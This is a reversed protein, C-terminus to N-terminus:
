EYLFKYDSLLYTTVAMWARITFNPDKTIQVAMPLDKGTAPDWRGQCEYTMDTDGSQNLERWTDLFVQYTRDIEPDNVDLKEDLLLQHLYQINTKINLVAGDVTHGASEPVETPDVMPFLHRSTKANTFDFATLRCAMENAMVAGVSGILSNATTLRTPVDASDIGGYLLNYDERLWDHPKDWEYTKRWRYGTVAAIKRNLMEPTLLRGTGMDLQMYPTTPNGEIARYYPSLVVAKVLSKFNSGNKSFDDATKRFFSDQQSWAALKSDFDPDNQDRPYALPDHGTLGKYASYIAGIAFRPDKAMEPGLWQQAHSYYSPDMTDAGFGTAFMEDHWPDMPNFDEYDQDDYGRFSGAVPDIVRHCVNCSTSDRTPNQLATVKTADVPREAIKLVDTALFYLFLRRARGRNRNTQTTQWRNLFVPTSIVGAHPVPGFGATVKAQVWENENTPDKFTPTVQYAKALYPNVVTYDATLIETYPHDNKIIWTMLALPERALADNVQPTEPPNPDQKYPGFGPYDKDNMFDIAARSYSNYSIYKDTLFTDNFMETLRDYFADEKMMGDLATALAADGGKSVADVEAQTPLRGVLDLSAKRLTSPADMLKIYAMAGTPPETCSATSSSENQLRDVLEVLAKYEASGSDLQVGGGHNMEGLPKRLLESKGDYEIKSVEKLTALNADIFGPYSPPQLVLKAGKEAVAQGDPTHCRTCKTGM